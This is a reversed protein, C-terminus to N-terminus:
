QLAGRQIKLTEAFARIRAVKEDHTLMATQETKQEARRSSLLAATTDQYVSHVTLAILAGTLSAAIRRLVGIEHLQIHTFM